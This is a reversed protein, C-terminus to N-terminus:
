ACSMRGLKALLETTYPSLLDASLLLSESALPYDNRSNHLEEPYVLYVDLIYGTEDDAGVSHLKFNAIEGYSPFKFSRVPLSESM